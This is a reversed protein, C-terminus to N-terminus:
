KGHPSFIPRVYQRLYKDPTQKVAEICDKCCLYLPYDGILLKVVPGKSGLVDGSVPCIRQRVIGERDAETALVQMIYPRINARTFIPTFSATPNATTTFAPFCSPSLRKRKM